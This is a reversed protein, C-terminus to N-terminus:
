FEYSFFEVDERYYEAVLRRTRDAYYQRYDGHATANLSPLVTKEFGIQRCVHDTDEQLNEFRGVFDVLINRNNGAIWALQPVFHM